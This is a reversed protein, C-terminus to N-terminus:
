LEVGLLAMVKPLEETAFVKWASPSFSVEEGEPTTWDLRDYAKDYYFKGMVGEICRVTYGDFCLPQVTKSENIRANVTEVDGDSIDAMVAPAEEKGYRAKANAKWKSVNTIGHDTLYQDLGSDGERWMRVAENIDNRSMRERKNATVKNVQEEEKRIRDYMRLCAWSCIFQNRRKYVWQNPYDCWFSDGCVPCIAKM